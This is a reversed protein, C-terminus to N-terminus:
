ADRRRTASGADRREPKPERLVGNLPVAVPLRIALTVGDGGKVSLTIRDATHEAVAVADGLGYEHTHGVQRSALLHAEKLHKLHHSVLSCDLGLRASLGSVNMPERAVLLLIELRTTSSLLKCLSSCSLVTSSPLRSPGPTRPEHM